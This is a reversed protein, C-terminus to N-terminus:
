PSRLGNRNAIRGPVFSSQIPLTPQFSQSDMSRIGSGSADVTDFKPQGQKSPGSGCDEYWAAPSPWHSESEGDSTTPGYKVYECSASTTGPSDHGISFPDEM